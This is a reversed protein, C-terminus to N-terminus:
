SKVLYLALKTTDSQLPFTISCIVLHMPQKLVKQCRNKFSQMCILNNNASSKQPIWLM